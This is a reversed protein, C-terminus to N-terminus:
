VAVEVGRGSSSMPGVSSVGLGVCMCGLIGVGSVGPNIWQNQLCRDCRGNWM